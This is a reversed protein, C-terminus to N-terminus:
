SAPAPASAGGAGDVAEIRPALRAVLAALRPAAAAGAALVEQELDGGGADQPALAVRNAVLSLGLCAMGLHRAAVIEPATSMGVADAGLARLMRAEAPTEFSPGAVMAYVGERAALGVSPALELALRRLAPDYADVMSPFRPGLAADNPGRLPSAGALGPLFLHDRIVMLDGPALDPDLGGSANTAILTHAGLARLVRVGFAIRAPEHGEYLHARGRAVATPIGGLRGLVLVGEHGPATARPWGPIRDFSVELADELRDALAALGSGSLVALRPALSAGGRGASAAADRVARAAASVEASLPGGDAAPAPVAGLAGGPSAPRM